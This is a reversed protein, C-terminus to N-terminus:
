DSIGDGAVSEMEIDSVGGDSEEAASSTTIGEKRDSKLGKMKRTQMKSLDQVGVHIRGVKDGMEDTDWNKSRKKAQAGGEGKTKRKLTKTAAKWQEESGTNSRRPSFDFSPGCQELNIFPTKGSSSKLLKILYTRFHIVPTASSTSSSATPVISLPESTSILPSSDPAHTISIVHELGQLNINSALEGRYLDLIMSKFQIYFPHTSFLDGSFVFLPKQGVSPKRSQNYICM